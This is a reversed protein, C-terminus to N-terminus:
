NEMPQRGLCSVVKYPNARVDLCLIHGAAAPLPPPKPLFWAKQRLWAPVPVSARIWRKIGPLSRRHDGHSCCVGPKCCERQEEDESERTVRLLSATNVRTHVLCVGRLVIKQRRLRFVHLPAPVVGTLLRPQDDIRTVRNGDFGKRM